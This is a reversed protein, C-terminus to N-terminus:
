RELEQLMFRLDEREQQANRLKARLQQRRQERERAPDRVPVEPHVRGGAGAPEVRDTAMQAQTQQAEQEIQGRVVDEESPEGPEDNDKAEGEDEGVEDMTELVGEDNMEREEREKRKKAELHAPQNKGLRRKGDRSSPPEDQRTQIDTTQIPHQRTTAQTQSRKEMLKRDMQVERSAQTRPEVQTSQDCQEIPFTQCEADEALTETQSETHAICNSPM